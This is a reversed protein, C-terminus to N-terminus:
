RPVERVGNPFEHVRSVSGQEQYQLLVNLTHHPQLAIFINFAILALLAVAIVGMWEVVKSELRIWIFLQRVV